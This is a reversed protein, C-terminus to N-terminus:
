ALQYNLLRKKLLGSSWKINNRLMLYQHIINLIDEKKVLSHDVSFEYVINNLSVESQENKTFFKPKIGLCFNCWSM